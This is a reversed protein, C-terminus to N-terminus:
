KNTSVAWRCGDDILFCAEGDKMPPTGIHIEGSKLKADVMLKAYDRSYERYFQQQYYFVAHAHSRFYSTGYTM